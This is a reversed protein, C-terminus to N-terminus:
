RRAHLPNSSPPRVTRQAPAGNPRIIVCEERRVEDRVIRVGQPPERIGRHMSRAEHHPIPPLCEDGPVIAKGPM